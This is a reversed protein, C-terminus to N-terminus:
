AAPKVQIKCVKAQEKAADRAVVFSHRGPATAAKIGILAVGAHPAKRSKISRATRRRRRPAAM